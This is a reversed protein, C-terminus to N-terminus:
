YHFDAVAVRGSRDFPIGEMELLARKMAPGGQYGGLTRDSRVARHCPVIIPFPNTALAMGVARAGRLRGLHRAIRQYTSVSGRPIAYEARLVRQQFESCLDLRVTELSFHVDDGKLFAEILGAIEDVEPCIALIAEPYSAKVAQKAPLGPKSLVVRDIKPRGASTSWIVAFPGFSSERTLFSGQSTETIKMGEVRIRNTSTM